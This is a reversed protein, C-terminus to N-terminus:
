PLKDHIIGTINFDIRLAGDELEDILFAVYESGTELFWGAIAGFQTREFRLADYIDNLFVHGRIALINNLHAATGKLFLINAEPTRTWNANKEDFIVAWPRPEEYAENM